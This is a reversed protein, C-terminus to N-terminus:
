VGFFNKRSASDRSFVPRETTVVNFLDIIIKEDMPILQKTSYKVDSTTGKSSFNVSLSNLTPDSFDPVFM